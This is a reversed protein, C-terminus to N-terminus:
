ISENVTFGDDWPQVFVTFGATQSDVPKDPSSSGPRTIKMTVTSASNSVIGDLTVPYYYTKGGLEAEVVLRTKRPTWVGGSEDSATPNPYCYFYHVKNYPSSPTIFVNTLNVGVVEPSDSERFIRNHWKGPRTPTLYNRDGAVNLLYISKVQFNQSNHQDLAFDVSIGALAVRAAIRRVPIRLSSSARLTASERGEMVFSGVRNESLYSKRGELDVLSVVDDLRSANVLAVVEKQGSSCSLSLSEADEYGYAELMGNHDFVYVQLNRVANEEASGEVKTEHVPVAIELRIKGSESDDDPSIGGECGAALCVVATVAAILNFNM